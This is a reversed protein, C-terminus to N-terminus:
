VGVRKFVYKHFLYCMRDADLFKEIFVNLAYCILLLTFSLIHSMNNLM